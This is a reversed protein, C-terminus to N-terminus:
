APEYMLDFVEVPCILLEGSHARLLWDGPRATTTGGSPPIELEGDPSCQGPPHVERGIFEGVEACNTGPLYQVAEFTPRRQHVTISM